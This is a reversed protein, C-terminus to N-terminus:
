HLAQTLSELFGGEIAVVLFMRRERMEGLKSADVARSATRATDISSIRQEM